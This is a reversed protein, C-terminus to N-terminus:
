IPFVLSFKPEVTFKSQIYKFSQFDSFHKSMEKLSDFNESVAMDVEPAVFASGISLALLRDILHREYTMDLM